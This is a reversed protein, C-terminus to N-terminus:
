PICSFPAQVNLPITSCTNPFGPAINSAAMNVKAHKVVHTPKTLEIEWNKEIKNLFTDYVFHTIIIVIRAKKIQLKPNDSIKFIETGINFAM